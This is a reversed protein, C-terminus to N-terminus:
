PKTNPEANVEHGALRYCAAQEANRVLLLDGSIALNNWTKGELASIKALEKRGQPSPEILVLEGNEALILLYRGVLLMQGHHYRGSKWLLQGDALRLCALIGADLGYVHDEFDVPNSFKTRMQPIHWVEEAKWAQSERKIDILAAGDRDTSVFVSSRHEPRLIPQPCSNGNENFPFRWVTSGTLIDHGALGDGDLHVLQRQGDFVTVNPSSYSAPAGSKWRISGDAADYAILSITNSGTPSLIVLGDTVLPSSTVGNDDMSAGTDSLINTSWHLTGSRLDLCNLLGTAGVSYVKGNEITPTARPGPGGMSQNFHIPDQHVWLEKGTALDYAVV